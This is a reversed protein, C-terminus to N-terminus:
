VTITTSALDFQPSTVGSVTCRVVHNNNGGHTVVNQDTPQTTTQYMLEAGKCVMLGPPVQQHIYM